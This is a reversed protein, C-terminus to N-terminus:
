AYVILQMKNFKGAKLTVARIRLEIKHKINCCSEYYLLIEIDTKVLCFRNKEIGGDRYLCPGDFGVEM